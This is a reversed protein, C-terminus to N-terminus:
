DKVCRIYQLFDGAESKTDIYAMDDYCRLKWIGESQSNSGNLSSTWFINSHKSVEEYEAYWYFFYRSCELYIDSRSCFEMRDVPSVAGFGYLNVSDCVTLKAGVNLWYTSKDDTDQVGGVAIFLAKVEDSSPLHWGEPCIGRVPYTRDCDANGDGCGFGNTSFLGASDMAASWTYFRGFERCKELDNEICASSSDLEATRQAYAFRLNEAMWWQNGIKVTRYVQNDRVDTLSGYECMECNPIMPDLEEINTASDDGCGALLMATALFTIMKRM